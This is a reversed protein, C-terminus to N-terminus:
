EALEGLRAMRRRQVLGRRLHARVANRAAVKVYDRFRGRDPRAQPLGYEIFSAIFERAVEEAEDRDRLLMEMYALIAPAYRHVFHEPVAVRSWM